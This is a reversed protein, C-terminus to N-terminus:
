QDPERDGPAYVELENDQVFGCALTGDPSWDPVKQWQIGRLQARTSEFYDSQGFFETILYLM